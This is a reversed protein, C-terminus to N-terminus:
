ESQYCHANNYTRRIYVAIKRARIQEKMRLSLALILLFQLAALISQEKLIICTHIVEACYVVSLRIRICTSYFASQLDVFNLM